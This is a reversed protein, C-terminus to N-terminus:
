VLDKGEKRAERLDRALGACLVVLVVAALVPWILVYATLSFSSM